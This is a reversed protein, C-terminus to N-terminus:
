RERSVMKGGCRPCFLWEQEGLKNCETCARVQDQEDTPSLFQTINYSMTRLRRDMSRKFEWANHDLVVNRRSASLKKGPKAGGRVEEKGTSVRGRLAKGPARGIADGLQLARTGYAANHLRQYAELFGSPPTGWGDDESEKVVSRIVVVGDTLLQMQKVVGRNLRRYDAEETKSLRLEKNGVRNMQARWVHAARNTEILLRLLEKTARIPDM